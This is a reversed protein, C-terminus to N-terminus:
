GGIPTFVYSRGVKRVTGIKKIDSSDWWAFGKRNWEFVNFNDEAPKGLMVMKPSAKGTRNIRNAWARERADIKRGGVKFADYGDKYSFELIGIEGAATKIPNLNMLYVYTGM